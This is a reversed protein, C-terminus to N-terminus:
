LDNEDEKDVKDEKDQDATHPPLTLLHATGPEVKPEQAQRELAPPEPGQLAQELQELPVQEALVQTDPPELEPELPM